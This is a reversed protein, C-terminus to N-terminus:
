NFNFKVAITGTQSSADSGAFRFKKATEVACSKSQADSLTSGSLTPTADTVVGRSDVTVKVVVIGKEKVPCDATPRSTVKRGKLGGGIGEGSGSGSGGGDGGGDGNSKGFPNDGTGGPVGGNDPKGGGGAGGGNTKGSGLAGGFKGKRKEFEAKEAAVKDAAEQDARRKADAAAQEERQKSRRTEDEADQKKKAEEKQRKIAAVEPDATTPTNKPLDAKTPESKAPKPDAKAPPTPPVPTPDPTTTKSTPDELQEGKPAPADNMGKDPEGEAANDGGGGNFDIVIEPTVPTIESSNLKYFWLLAFLIAHFIFSMIAARTRDEDSHAVTNM